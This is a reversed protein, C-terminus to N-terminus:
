GSAICVYDQLLLTKCRGIVSKILTRSRPIWFEASLVRLKLQIRGHLTVQHIFCVVVHYFLPIDKVSLCSSPTPLGVGVRILGEEDVFPHLNLLSSSSNIPQGNTLNLYEEPFYVKQTIIILKRKVVQLENLSIKAHAASDTKRRLLSIFRYVYAMVRLAKSYSSFRVLVDEFDKFYTFFIKVSRREGETHFERQSEIEWDNGGASLWSPGHWWLYNDIMDKPQVGRSIIDASNHESRVHKWCDIGVLDVIKSVRNSIFTTWSCPPKQLLALVIMSDSWCYFM